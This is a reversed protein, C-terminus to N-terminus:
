KTDLRAIHRIVVMDPHVSVFERSADVLMQALKALNFSLELSSMSFVPARPYDMDM